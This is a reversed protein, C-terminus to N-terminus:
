VLPYGISKFHENYVNSFTIPKSEPPTHTNIFIACTSFYTSAALSTSLYTSIIFVMAVSVLMFPSFVKESSDPIKYM